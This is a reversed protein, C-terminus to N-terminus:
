SFLIGFFFIIFFLLWCNTTEGGPSNNLLDLETLHPDGATQVVEASVAGLAERLVIHDEDVLVMRKVAPLHPFPVSVDHVDCSKQGLLDGYDPLGDVGSASVIKLAAKELVGKLFFVFPCLDKTERPLPTGAGPKLLM